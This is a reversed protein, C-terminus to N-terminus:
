FNLFYVYFKLGVSCDDGFYNEPCDCIGNTCVGGNQCPKQCSGEKM